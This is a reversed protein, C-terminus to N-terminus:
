QDSLSDATMRPVLDRARKPQGIGLMRSRLVQTAEIASSYAPELDPPSQERLQILEELHGEFETEPFMPPGAGNERTFRQIAQDVEGELRKVAVHIDENRGTESLSAIEDVRRQLFELRLELARSEDITALLQAREVLLKFPYTGDGPLAGESARAVASGLLLLIILVPPALWAINVRPWGAFWPSVRDRTTQSWRSFRSKSPRPLHRPTPYSSLASDGPPSSITRSQLAGEGWRRAKIRFDSIGEPISSGLEPLEGTDLEPDPEFSYGSGRVTVFHRPRSPDDELKIRLRYVFQKVLDVDGVYEPGWAQTLIEDVSLVQDPHQMFLRFVEFEKPTLQVRRDEIVVQRKAQDVKWPAGTPGTAPVIRARRRLCAQLRAALEAYKVPKAIYDDAGLQLGRIAEQSDSLVTFFLIVADSIDRLRACVERGDMGPMRIDLIVADPQHDYALRLGEAGSAATLVEYGDKELHMALIENAEVEDDIVLVLTRDSM